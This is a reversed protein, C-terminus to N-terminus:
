KAADGMVAGNPAANAGAQEAAKAESLDKLTALGEEFSAGVRKDMDMFVSVAKNLFGNQGSM